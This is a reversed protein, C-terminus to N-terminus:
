VNDYALLGCNLEEGHFGLIDSFDLKMQLKKPTHLKTECGLSLVCCLILNSTRVTTLIVIETKQSM